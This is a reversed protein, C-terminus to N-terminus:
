ASQLRPFRRRWKSRPTCIENARTGAAGLLVTGTNFNQKAQALATMAEFLQLNARYAELAKSTALEVPWGSGVRAAVYGPFDVGLSMSLVHAGEEVAWTMARVITGTDASGDQAVVKAILADQVGRAVGIRQGAVDRGFITGACHTGHGDVDGNGEGTFDRETISMHAFAEHNTDIGTDLVAVRVGIGSYSSVDAGVAAIGWSDGTTAASSSAPRILRAPMSAAIGVVAPDRQVEFQEQLTLPGATEVM